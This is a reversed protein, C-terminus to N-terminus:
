HNCVNQFHLNLFPGTLNTPRFRIFLSADTGLRFYPRHLGTDWNFGLASYITMPSWNASTNLCVRTGSAPYNTVCKLGSRSSSSSSLWFKRFGSQLWIPGELESLVGLIICKQFGLAFDQHILIIGVMMIEMIFRLFIFSMRGLIPLNRVIIKWKVDMYLGDTWGDMWRDM